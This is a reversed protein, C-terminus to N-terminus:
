KQWSPLSGVRGGEVWMAHGAGSGELGGTQYVEVGVAMRM